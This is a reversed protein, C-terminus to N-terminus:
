CQTSSPATSIESWVCVMMLESCYSLQICKCKEDTEHILSYSNLRKLRHGVAPSLQLLRQTGRWDSDSFGSLQM